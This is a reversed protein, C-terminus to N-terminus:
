DCFNDFPPTYWPQYYWCCGVVQCEFWEECAGCNDLSCPGITNLNDFAFIPKSKMITIKSFNKDYPLDETFWFCDNTDESYNTTIGDITWSLWLLNNDMDFKLGFEAWTHAPLVDDGIVRDTSGRPIPDDCFVTAGNWRLDYSDVDYRISPGQTGFFYFRLVGAGAVGSKFPLNLYHFGESSASDISETPTWIIQRADSGETKVGRSGELVYDTDATIVFDAIDSWEGKQLRLDGLEYGESDEFSVNWATPFAFTDSFVGFIGFVVFVVGFSIKLLWIRLEKVSPNLKIAFSSM